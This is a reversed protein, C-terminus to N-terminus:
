SRGHRCIWVHSNEVALPVRRVVEVGIQKFVAEYSEYTRPLINQVGHIYEFGKAFFVNQRGASSALVTDFVLLYRLRPFTKAYSALIAALRDDSEVHHTFFTMMLADIDPYSGRLAFADDREFTIPVGADPASALNRRALAIATEDIDLGLGPLRLERCLKLLRLGAGCGLDAIGRQLGLEAFIATLAPDIHQRGIHGSYEAVLDGNPGSAQAILKRALVGAYARSWLNLVPLAARLEDPGVALAVEDDSWRLIGGDRLAVVCARWTPWADAADLRLRALPVSPAQEFRRLLGLQDALLLAHAALTSAFLTPISREMATM